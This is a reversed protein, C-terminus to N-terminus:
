HPLNTPDAYSPKRWLRLNLQQAVIVIPVGGILLTSVEANLMSDVIFGVELSRRKSLTPTRM